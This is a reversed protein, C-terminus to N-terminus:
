YEMGAIEREACPRKDHQLTRNYCKVIASFPWFLYSVETCGSEMLQSGLHLSGMQLDLYAPGCSDNMYM